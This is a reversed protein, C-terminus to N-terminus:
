GHCHDERGIRDTSPWDECKPSQPLGIKANQLNLFDLGERMHGHGMWENFPQDSTYTPLENVLNKEPIGSVQRVFQIMELGVEIGLSRM